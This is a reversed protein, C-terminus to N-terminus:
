NYKIIKNKKVIYSNNAIQILPLDSLSDTYFNEISINGFIERFRDVKNIGYCNKGSLTGNNKNFNSAILKKIKLKECIPNLLFFPSASIIVDNSHNKNLYFYKIKKEHKKWFLTVIDDVNNIAVMATIIKTLSAPYKLKDQNKQAVVPYSSDDLNILMYSDAYITTDPEYVAAKATFPVCFFSLAVLTVSIFFSLLKKM